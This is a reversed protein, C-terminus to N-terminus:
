HQQLGMGEGLSSATSCLHLGPIFFFFYTAKKVAADMTSANLEAYNNSKNLMALLMLFFHFAVIIKPMVLLM